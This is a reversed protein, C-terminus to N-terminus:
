KFLFTPDVPKGFHRLEFYFGGISQTQNNGSNAIVMGTIVKKGVTIPNKIGGYISTYNNSHNIIVVQGIGIINGVYVVFGDNIAYVPKNIAEIVLGNNVIQKRLEGYSILIKGEVPVHTKNKLFVGTLNNTSNFNSLMENLQKQMEQLIAVEKRKQKIDVDIAMKELLKSNVKNKLLAKKSSKDQLKKKLINIKIQLQQNLNKLEEIKKQLVHFKLLEYQLIKILYLNKRKLQTRENSSIFSSTNDLAIIQKYIQEIGLNINNNITKLLIELENISQQVRNVADINIQEENSLTKLAENLDDIALQTNNISKNIEMSKHTKNDIIFNMQRIKVSVKKLDSDIDKINVAYINNILLIILLKCFLLMKIM